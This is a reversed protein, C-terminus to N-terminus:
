ALQREVLASVYLSSSVLSHDGSSQPSRFNTEAASLHLRCKCQPNEARSKQISWRAQETVVGLDYNGGSDGPQLGYLHQFMDLQLSSVDGNHTFSDGRSPSSDSEYKNHSGSLGQPKSILGTLGLLTSQEGGISWSLSLPDGDILTASFLIYEHTKVDHQCSSTHSKSLQSSHASISAWEM